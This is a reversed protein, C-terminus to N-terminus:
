VFPNVITPRNDILQNHQLDESKIPDFQHYKYMLYIQM